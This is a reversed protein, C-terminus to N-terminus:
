KRTQGHFLMKEREREQFELVLAYLWQLTTSNSVGNKSLSFEELYERYSHLNNHKDNNQYIQYIEPILVENIINRVYECNMKLFNQTVWKRLRIRFEPFSDLFPSSYKCDLQITLNPHPFTENDWFYRNQKMLVKPSIIKKLGFENCKETANECHDEFHIKECSELSLVALYAQKLFVIQQRTTVIQSSILESKKIANISFREFQYIATEFKKM